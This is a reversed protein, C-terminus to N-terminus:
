KGLMLIRWYSMWKELTPYKKILWQCGKKEADLYYQKAEEETWRCVCDAIDYSETAKKYANGNGIEHEPDSMKRRVSRSAIQKQKKKSKGNDKIIPVKKFSRSM